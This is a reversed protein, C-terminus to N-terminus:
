QDGTVDGSGIHFCQVPVLKGMEGMFEDLFHYTHDETPDVAPAFVGWKREAAYPAPASALDPYGVFRATSHGPMDFEPTVRIGRDRAYAIVDRVESQTYYLGDSGM